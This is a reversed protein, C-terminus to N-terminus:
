NLVEWGTQVQAFGDESFIRITTKFDSDPPFAVRDVFRDLIENQLAEWEPVLETDAVPLAGDKARAGARVGQQYAEDSVVFIDM